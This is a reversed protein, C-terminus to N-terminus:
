MVCVQDRIEQLIEVLEELSDDKKNNKGQKIEKMEEGARKHCGGLYAVLGLKGQSPVTENLCKSSPSLALRAALLEAVHHKQLGSPNKTTNYMDDDDLTLHVCTPTRDSTADGVTVLLVRRLLLVKKRRIKAYPDAATSSSTTTTTTTSPPPSKMKKKPAPEMTVDEDKTPTPKSKPKNEVVESDVEMPSPPAASSPKDVDMPADDGGSSVDASTSAASSNMKELAALRALRKAKMEDASLIAPASAEENNDDNEANNDNSSAAAGDDDGGGAAGGGLAWNAIDPLFGSM